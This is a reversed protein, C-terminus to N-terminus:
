EGDVTKQANVSHRGLCEAVEAIVPSWNGPQDQRFITASPYWPSHRQGRPWRWDADSRVLVWVPVRLGGALHAVSTDVSIVLDLAKVIAATDAFDGVDDMPDFLQIGPPLPRAQEAGPGLQLSILSIGAITSLPALDALPVSRRRDMLWAERDHSRPAGSWVLGIKLGPLHSLRAKWREVEAPDARLYPVNPPITDFSTGILRAMSLLPLHCDHPPLDAPDDIVASVGPVSRLLRALPKAVLLVVKGGVAAAVTAYRAFQLVDGLGQEGYLVVTRGNLPGGRWEKAPDLMRVMPIHRRRWEYEAFGAGYDGLELLAMGLFCHAEANGPDLEVARRLYPVAEEHRNTFSLFMGLKLSYRPVNPAIALARRFLTEAAQVEGEESHFAGANCLIPPSHPSREMAEEHARRAQDRKGCEALALALNSFVEADGGAQIAHRLPPLAEAPRGAARLSTGLNCHFEWIDPHAEALRRFHGAAEEHRGQASCTQALDLLGRMKESLARPLARM